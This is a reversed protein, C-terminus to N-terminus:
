VPLYLLCSLSGGVFFEDRRASSLERRRRALRPALLVPIDVAASRQSAGMSLRRAPHATRAAHQSRAVGSFHPELIPGPSTRVPSRASDHPGHSARCRYFNTERPGDGDRPADLKVQVNFGEGREVPCTGRVTGMDFMDDM